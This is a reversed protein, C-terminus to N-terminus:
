REMSVDLMEVIMVLRHHIPWYVWPQVQETAFAQRWHERTELASSRAIRFFRHRDTASRRQGEAITFSISRVARGLARTSSADRPARVLQHITDAAARAADLARLNPRTEMPALM